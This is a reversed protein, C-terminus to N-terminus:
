QSAFATGSVTCATAMDAQLLVSVRQGGPQVYEISGTEASTVPNASFSDTTKFDTNSSAHPLGTSTVWESSIYAHDVSTRAVITGASCTATVTLGGLSFLTQKTGTTPTQYNFGKVSVGGVTDADAAHTANDASNAHLASSANSANPVTGLTAANVQKGPLSGALVKAGTVAGNALKRATVAGNHLKKSTVAGNVLQRAGVSNKPVKLAAYAGGGLALFVAVTAMVNAYSLRRAPDTRM